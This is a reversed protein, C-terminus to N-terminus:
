LETWAGLANNWFVHISQGAALTVDAGSRTYLGSGALSSEDRLTFSGSLCTIFLHQHQSSIADINPTSALVHPGGSVTVSVVGNTTPISDSTASITKTGVGTNLTGFTKALVSNTFLGSGGCAFNGSTIDARKSGSEHFDLAGSVARLEPTAGGTLRVNGFNLQKTASSYTPGGELSGDAAGVMVDDETAGTIDGIASSGSGSSAPDRVSM